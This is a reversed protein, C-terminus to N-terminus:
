AVFDSPELPINMKGKNSNENKEEDETKSLEHHSINGSIKNAMEEQHNEQNKNPSITGLIKKNIIMWLKYLKM